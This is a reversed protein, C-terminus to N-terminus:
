RNQIQRILAELQKVVTEEPLGGIPEPPLMTVKYAHIVTRVEDEVAAVALVPMGDLVCEKSVCVEAGWMTAMRGARLFDVKTEPEMVDRDFRRIGAYLQATMLLHSVRVDCDEVPRFGDAVHKARLDGHVVIGRVEAKGGLSNLIQRICQKITETEPIVEGKERLTKIFDVAKRAEAQNCEFFSKGGNVFSVSM